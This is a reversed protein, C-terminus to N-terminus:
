ARLECKFLRSKRANYFTGPAVNLNSFRCYCTEVYYRRVDLRPASPAMTDRFLKIAMTFLDFHDDSIFATEGVCKAMFETVM